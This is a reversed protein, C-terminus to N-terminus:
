NNQKMLQYDKQVLFDYIQKLEKEKTQLNNNGLETQLNNIGLQM